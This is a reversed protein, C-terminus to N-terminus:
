KGPLPPLHSEKIEADTLVSGMAYYHLDDRALEPIAENDLLRFSKRDAGAIIIGAYYAHNKDKAYRSEGLARFSAPDANANLYCTGGDLMPTYGYVHNKDAWYVFNLFHFSGTDIVEKLDAIGGGVSDGARVGWMETIYATARDFNENVARTTRYGISGDSGLYLGCKMLRYIITDDIFPCTLCNRYHYAITDLKKQQQAQTECIIIFWLVTLFTRLMEVINTSKM